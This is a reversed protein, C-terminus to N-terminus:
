GPDEGGPRQRPELPPALHGSFARPASTPRPDPEAAQMSAETQGDSSRSKAGRGKNYGTTGEWGGQEPSRTGPGHERGSPPQRTWCVPCRTRVQRGEGTCIRHSFFMVSPSGGPKRCEQHHHTHPQRPCATSPPSRPSPATPFGDDGQWGCRTRPSTSRLAQGCLPTHASWRPWPRGPSRSDRGQSGCPCPPPGPAQPRPRPHSPHTVQPSAYPQSGPDRHGGDPRLDSVPLSM